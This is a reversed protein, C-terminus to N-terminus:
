LNAGLEHTVYNGSSDLSVECLQSVRRGANTKEMFAVVNVTEAILSRSATVGAEQVLQELRILGKRASDAHVTACGGPHGTNWAKLLALAESGRVEGIIIRDPRLRLTAKICDTMSAIGDRTRLAVYDPAACQLERTDQIIVLRDNTKAIEALLANTLTTKGSNTGGVVLINKKEQVAKRLEEAYHQPMAGQAVYDDLYYITIAQTRISFIPSTTIPPLIGTFRSGSGPLEASLIPHQENCIAKTSSAVIYIARQANAASLTKGTFSLGAGLREVWLRGDENLILETVDKELLLAGVEEGLATALMSMIRDNTETEPILEM